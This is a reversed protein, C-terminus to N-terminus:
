VSFIAMESVTRIKYLLTKLYKSSLAPSLSNERVISPAAGWRKRNIITTTIESDPKLKDPYKTKPVCDASYLERPRERTDSM